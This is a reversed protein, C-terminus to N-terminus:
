SRCRTLFVEFCCPEKGPAEWSWSHILHDGRYNGDRDLPSGEFCHCVGDKRCSHCPLVAVFTALAATAPCCYELAERHGKREKTPCCCAAGGFSRGPLVGCWCLLLYHAGWRPLLLVGHHCHCPVELSWRREEALPVELDTQKSRLLYGAVSWTPPLLAGGEGEERHSRLLTTAECCPEVACVILLVERLSPSPGKPDKAAVTYYTLTYSHKM